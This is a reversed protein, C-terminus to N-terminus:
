ATAAAEDDREKAGEDEEEPDVEEDDYVVINWEETPIGDDVQDGSIASPDTLEMGAPLAAKIAAESSSGSAGGEEGALYSTDYDKYWAPLRRARALRRSAPTKVAAVLSAAAAATASTSAVAAVRPRKSSTSPLQQLEHEVEGQDEIVTETPLPKPAASKILTITRRTVDKFPRPSIPNALSSITHLYGILSRGLSVSCYRLTTESHACRM